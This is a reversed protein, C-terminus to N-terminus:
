KKIFVDEETFDNTKDGNFVDIKNDKITGTYDLKIGAFTETLKINEGDVSWTLDYSTENRNSKGTGDAKLELTWEEEENNVDSGVLKSYELKYTGAYSSLDNKKGCATLLLLGIMLFLSLMFFKKM